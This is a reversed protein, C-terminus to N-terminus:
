KGDHHVSVRFLIPPPVPQWWNLAEAPAHPCSTADSCLAGFADCSPLASVTTLGGTHLALQAASEQASNAAMNSFWDNNLTRTTGALRFNFGIPGYVGNLISIQQAIQSDYINGDYVPDSGQLPSSPM